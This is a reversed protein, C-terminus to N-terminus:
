ASEKEGQAGLHSGFYAIEIQESTLEEPRGELTTHGELLCLARSAVRLGQSVDQEVLLVGIGSAVIQPIIEYIREIVIPALGLSVEDLMLVKPNAVLARGIAVAQQEGGSFQRVKSKRRDPMWPFLEYVAAIDFAGAAAKHAGVILNEELTMSQFLRRGEPVLSIGSTVRRHAPYASIERGEFNIEGSTAHHLGAITRLLTSKGAGNAGIVALVDGRGVEFSVSDVACLQGHHVTLDTVALLPSPTDM